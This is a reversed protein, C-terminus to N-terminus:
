SVLDDIGGVVKLSFVSIPVGAIALTLHLIPFGQIARSPLTRGL